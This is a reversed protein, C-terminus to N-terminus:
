HVDSKDRLLAGRRAALGGIAVTILLWLGSPEPAASWAGPSNSNRAIDETEFATATDGVLAATNITSISATFADDEFRIQWNTINGSADTSILFFDILSNNQNLGLDIPPDESSVVKFNYSEPTVPALNLNDGLAQAVTFSGRIVCSPTGPPVCITEPPLNLDFLQNGVYNYTADAHLQQGWATACIFIIANMTHKILKRNHRHTM